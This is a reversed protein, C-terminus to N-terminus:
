VGAWLCARAKADKDSDGPLTAILALPV